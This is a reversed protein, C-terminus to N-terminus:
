FNSDDASTAWILIAGFALIVVIALIIQILGMIWGARAMGRNSWADPALAMEKEASRGMFFSIPGLVIGLAGYCIVISVLGVIGVVMSATAKGNSSTPRGYVPQGFSQYGPPPQQPYQQQPYQQQPYPHQQAPQQPYPHPYQQQNPSTEPSPNAPPTPGTPGSPSTPPEPTAGDDPVSPPTPGSTPDSYWPNQEDTV